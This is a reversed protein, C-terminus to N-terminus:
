TEFFLTHMGYVYKELMLRYAYVYASQELEIAVSVIMILYQCDALIVGCANM